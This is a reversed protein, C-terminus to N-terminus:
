RNEFGERQDEYEPIVLDESVEVRVATARDIALLQILRQSLEPEIERWM